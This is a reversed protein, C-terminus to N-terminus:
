PSSGSSSRQGGGLLEALAARGSSLSSTSSSSMASTTLLHVPIGTEPHQLALDLLQHVHLLPQVLAHDPLVLRERRPWRWGACRAGPRLSGLRGMPENM